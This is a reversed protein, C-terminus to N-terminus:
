ALVADGHPVHQSFTMALATKIRGNTHFGFGCVIEDGEQGVVRLNRSDKEVAPLGLRREPPMRERLDGIQIALKLENAQRGRARRVRAPAKRLLQGGPPRYRTCKSSRVPLQYSFPLPPSPSVGSSDTKRSHRGV